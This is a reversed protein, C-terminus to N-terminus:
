EACQGARRAAGGTRAADELGHGSGWSAGDEREFSASNKQETDPSNPDGVAILPDYRKGLIGGWQGPCKYVQDFAVHPIQVFPPVTQSEARFRALVSGYAPWDESTAGVQVVDRAPTYGSISLYTAPNHNAIRHSMSRIQALKHCWRSLRPMIETVRYGPLSTAITQFEGRIGAPANPKPDWTDINSPAGYHQILIVNDAHASLTAAAAESRLLEPLALGAMGLVGVKLLDRRNHSRDQQHLQDLKM